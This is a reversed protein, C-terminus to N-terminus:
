SHSTTITSANASDAEETSLHSKIEAILNRQQRCLSNEPACYSLLQQPEDFARCVRLQQLSLINANPITVASALEEIRRSELITLNAIQAWHVSELPSM